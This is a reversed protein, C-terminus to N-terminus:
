YDFHTCVVNRAECARFDHARIAALHQQEAARKHDNWGPRASAGSALEICRPCTLDYRRFIRTCTNSHKTSM